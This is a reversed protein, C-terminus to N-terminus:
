VFKTLDEITTNGTIEVTSDKIKQFIENIFSNLKNKNPNEIDFESLNLIKIVDKLYVKSSPLTPIYKESHEIIINSEQFINILSNLTDIDETVKKKLEKLKTAGKKSDFNKYLTVLFIIGDQLFYRNESNTEEKLSKYSEPHSLTYAVEAGLLIILASTYVLLLSLPISALAGYIAFTGVAFSKIYINFSMIFIVWLVGTVSAGIAASKIPIKSSPLFTYIFLFVIWIFIFPAFFDFLILFFNRGKLGTWKKNPNTSSIATGDEGTLFIKGNSIILRNIKIKPLKVTKWTEGGNTTSIFTGNEGAIYGTKKSVFVSTYFNKELFSKEQWTKGMDNSYLIIGSDGALYINNKDVISATYFDRYRIGKKAKSIKEMEWTKGNDTTKFIIGKQATIIGLSDNFSISTFKQGMDIDKNIFFTKGGDTTELLKNDSLIFGKQLTTMKIKELNLKDWKSIQWTKGNDRTKLLIGRTGVIWGTKNIFQVDNFQSLKLDIDDIKFDGAVFNFSEEDLKFIKQNILDISKRKIKKLKKLTKESHLITSKSGVIWIDNNQNISISKYNAASFVNTAQRVLTAGTILLIPGLTLTAWFYILRQYFSRGKRIKFIKNLSKEMSKLLATASIIMVIAGVGGIKGANKILGSLISFITDLQLNINHEVVFKSILSFIEDKKGEAGSFISYFTIIVTLTPILSIIVTYAISSAKTFGDDILFKKISVFSIKFANIIKQLIFNTKFEGSIIESVISKSKNQIKVIKKKM